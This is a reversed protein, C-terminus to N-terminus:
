LKWLVRYIEQSASSSNAEWCHDQETSNTREEYVLMKM